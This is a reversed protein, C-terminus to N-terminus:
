LIRRAYDILCEWVASSGVNWRVSGCGSCSTVCVAIFSLSFGVKWTSAAIQRLDVRFGEDKM